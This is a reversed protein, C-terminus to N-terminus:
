RNPQQGRGMRAADLGLNQYGVGELKKTSQTYAVVMMEQNIVDVIYVAAGDMGPVQGGVMTYDGRPRQQAEASPAFTVIGLIVLLAVNLVLLSRFTPAKSSTMMCVGSDLRQSSATLADISIAV